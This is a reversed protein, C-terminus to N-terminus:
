LPKRPNTEPSTGDLEYDQALSELWYDADESPRLYENFPEGDGVIRIVLQDKTKTLGFQVAGGMASVAVVVRHVLTADASGWDATLNHGRGRRRALNQEVTGSKGAGSRKGNAQGKQAMDNGKSKQANFQVHARVGTSAGPVKGACVIKLPCM